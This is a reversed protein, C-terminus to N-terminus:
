DDELNEIDNIVPAMPTISNDDEISWCGKEDDWVVTYIEGRFRITDHEWLERGKKDHFGTFMEIDLLIPKETLHDYGAFGMLSGNNVHHYLEAIANHYFLDKGNTRSRGRLRIDM